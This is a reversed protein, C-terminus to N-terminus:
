SGAFRCAFRRGAPELSVLEAGLHKMLGQRAFSERVRRQYDADQLEFGSKNNM